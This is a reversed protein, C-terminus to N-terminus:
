DAEEESEEKEATELWTVWQNVQFLAKGKGPFEQTVDEKWTLFAEEEIIEMDYFHVFFSLLMGKPFNSNYCHVQLAYLASVKNELLTKIWEHLISEHILDLKGLEGIFKINGLMKIKAIPRQEEEEPLLPNECKDYVDVNQNEFEDQLKSILLHRFTISQKQGPQGEAVPSDFNPADEALHLCLQAYLLSYKPEELAKYVIPLIVGNLM